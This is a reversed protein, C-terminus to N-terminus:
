KNYSLIALNKWLELLRFFITSFFEKNAHEKDFGTLIVYPYKSMKKYFYYEINKYQIPKSLEEKRLKFYDFNKLHDRYYSSKPDISNDHSQVVIRLDQDLIIYSVNNTHLVQHIKNSLKVIELGAVLAGLYTGQQNTIGFAVPIIWLGSSIGITPRSVQLTWPHQVCLTLYSRHSVNVPNKLNIGTKDIVMLNQPNVWNFMPYSIVGRNKSILQYNRAFVKEIFKLNDGDYASIEKGIYTMLNRTEDLTESLVMDITNSANELKQKNNSVHSSYLAQTFVLSAIILFTGM